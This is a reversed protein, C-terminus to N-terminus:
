RGGSRPAIVLGQVKNELFGVHEIYLDFGGYKYPISKSLLEYHVVPMIYKVTPLGHDQCCSGEFCYFSGMSPDFHTKAAFVGKDRSLIGIIDPIGEVSRLREVAIPSFTDGFKIATLGM